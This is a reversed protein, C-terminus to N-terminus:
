QAPTEKGILKITVADASQQQDTFELDHRDALRRLRSVVKTLLLPDDNRILSVDIVIPYGKRIRASGDGFFEMKGRGESWKRGWTDRQQNYTVRITADDNVHLQALYYFDEPSLAHPGVRLKMRPAQSRLVDHGRETLKSRWLILMKLNDQELLIPANSDDIVIGDFSLIELGKVSILDRLQEDSLKTHPPNPRSFDGRVTLYRVGPLSVGVDKPLNVRDFTLAELKPFREAIM